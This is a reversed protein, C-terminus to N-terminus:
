PGQFRAVGVSAGAPATDRGFASGSRVQVVFPAASACVVSQPEVNPRCNAGEIELAVRGSDRPDPLLIISYTGAELSWRRVDRAGVRTQVALFEGDQMGDFTTVPRYVWVRSGSETDGIRLDVRTAGTAIPTVLMDTITAITSDETRFVGTLLTVPTNSGSQAQFPFAQPRGGAVLHLTFPTYVRDIPRCKIAFRATLARLTARATADGSVAAARMSLARM